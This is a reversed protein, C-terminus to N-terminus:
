AKTWGKHQKRKGNYVDCLSRASIGTRREYDQLNYIHIINGLPDRFKYLKAISRESNKQGTLWQLNSVHNNNRDEDKHDVEPLNDPNPIWALAVLRHVKFTKEVGDRSLSVKRTGSSGTSQKLIRGEIWRIGRGRSQNVYRGLSRVQGCDSVEYIGSYRPDHVPRWSEM